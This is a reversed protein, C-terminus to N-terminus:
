KFFFGVTSVFSNLGLYGANLNVVALLAVPISIILLTSIVLLGKSFFNIDIYFTSAHSTSFYGRFLMNKIVRLYNFSAIPLLCVAM